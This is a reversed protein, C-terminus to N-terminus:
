AALAQDLRLLRRGAVRLGEIERATRTREGGRARRPQLVERAAVFSEEERHAVGRLAAVRMRMGEGAFDAVAEDLHLDNRLLEVKRHRDALDGHGFALHHVLEVA